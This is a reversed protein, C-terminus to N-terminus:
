RGVMKLVAARNSLQLKNVAVVKSMKLDALADEDDLRITRTRFEDSSNIPVFQIINADHDFVFVKIANEGHLMYHVRDGNEPQVNPDCIVEDGDDILPSMSEGSAIVCYLDPTFFNANYHCFKRSDQLHNIDGGGCDATGTIPIKIAGIINDDGFLYDTTTKLAIAIPSRLEDPTRIAGSLYRTFNTKTANTLPDEGTIAKAVDTYYSFGNEKMLNKIKEKFTM